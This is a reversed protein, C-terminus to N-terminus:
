LVSVLLDIIMALFGLIGESISVLLDYFGSFTNGETAPVTETQPAETEVSIRSETVSTNEETSTVDNGPLETEEESATPYEDPMMLYEVRIVKPVYDSYAIRRVGVGCQGDVNSELVSFGADNWDLIILSHTSVTVGDAKIYRVRIHAGPKTKSILAKFGEETVSGQPISGINTSTESDTEGIEGFCENYIYRAFAYCQVSKLPVGNYFAKCNCRGETEWGCVGTRHDTCGEGNDTFYSGVPYEPTPLTKEGVRATLALSSLDGNGNGATRIADALTSETSKGLGSDYLYCDYNIQEDETGEYSNEACSSYKSHSRNDSPKEKLWYIGKADPIFAKMQPNNYVVTECGTEFDLRVADCSRLFYMEEESVFLNSLRVESELIVEREGDLTTKVIDSGSDSFSIYYINRGVVNIYSANEESIVRENGSAINKLTLYGGNDPDSFLIMGDAYDAAYGGSLLVGSLNGFRGDSDEASTKSAALAVTGIGIFLVLAIILARFRKNFM